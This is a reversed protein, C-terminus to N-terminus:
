PSASGNGPRSGRWGPINALDDAMQTWSKGGGSIMYVLTQVKFLARDREQQVTTLQQRADEAENFREDSKRYFVFTSVCLVITLMVLLILAIQLGQNERSAM